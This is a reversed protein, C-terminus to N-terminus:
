PKAVYRPLVIQLKGGSGAVATITGQFSEIITKCIALGMGIGSEKTTFFPTFIQDLHKEDIGPGTDEFTIVVCDNSDIRTTVHIVHSRDPASSMADYANMILNLFVQQLRVPGAFVELSPNGAFDTDVQIKSMTLKRDMLAFVSRLIANVNVAVKPLEEKNFIAMIKNIVENARTGEDIIKKLSREVQSYDPAANKLWNMGVGGFAIMSTLPQRIDHAISATLQGATAVRNVHVLESVLVVARAEAQRRRRDEYLLVVVLGSLLIFALATLTIRWYYQEWMTPERFRIQSGAPLQSESIGWRQLERWDYMPTAFQVLSVEINGAKEGGLIRSAVAATQRSTDAVLLLPGGVIGQGM